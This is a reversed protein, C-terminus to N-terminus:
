HMMEAIHERVQNEELIPLV